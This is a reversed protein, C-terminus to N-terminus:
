GVLDSIDPVIMNDADMADHVIRVARWIRNFGKCGLGPVKDVTMYVRSFHAGLNVRRKCRKGELSIVGSGSFGIELSFFASGPPDHFIFSLCM